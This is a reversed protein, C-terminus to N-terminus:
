VTRTLAPVAAAALLVVALVTTGDVGRGAHPPAQDSDPLVAWAILYAIVGVGGAFIAIVFALRIIVPDINFYEAIGAAVGGIKRDASRTLRRPPPPGGSPPPPAAADPERPPPPPPRTVDEDRATAAGDQDTPDNDAPRDDPDAGDQDDDADPYPQAAPALSEEGMTDADTATHEGSASSAAADDTRETPPDQETMDRDDLGTARPVM